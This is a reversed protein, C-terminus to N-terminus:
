KKQSKQLCITVSNGRNRSRRPEMTENNSLFALVQGLDGLLHGLDTLTGRWFGSGIGSIREKNFGYNINQQKQAGLHVNLEGLSFILDGQFTGSFVHLHHLTLNFDDNRIQHTNLQRFGFLRLLQLPSSWSQQTTNIKVKMECTLRM